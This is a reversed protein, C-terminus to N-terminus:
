ILRKDHMSYSLFLPSIILPPHLPLFHPVNECASRPLSFSVQADAVIPLVVADCVAELLTPRDQIQIHWHM